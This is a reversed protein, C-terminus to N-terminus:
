SAGEGSRWCLSLLGVQGPPIVLRLRRAAEQLSTDDETVRALRRHLLPTPLLVVPATIAREEGPVVTPPAEGSSSTSRRRRWASPRSVVEELPDVPSGDPHHGWCGSFITPLPPWLFLRVDRPHSKLLRALYFLTLYPSVWLYFWCASDWFIGSVVLEPDFFLTQFLTRLPFVPFPRLLFSRLRVWGYLPFPRGSEGHRHVWVERGIYLLSRFASSHDLCDEMAPEGWGRWAQSEILNEARILEQELIVLGAVLSERM